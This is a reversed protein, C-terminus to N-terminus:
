AAARDENATPTHATLNRVHAALRAAVTGSVHLRHAIDHSTGGGALILAAAMLRETRTLAVRRTGAAAIGVAIQDVIGDDDLLWPSSPGRRPLATVTLKRSPAATLAPLRKPKPM